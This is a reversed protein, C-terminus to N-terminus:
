EFISGPLGAPDLEFSGKPVGDEEEGSMKDSPVKHAFRYKESGAIVMEAAAAKRRFVSVFGKVKELYAVRGGAEEDFDSLVEVFEYEYKREVDDDEYLSSWNMSWNKFVAWTEGKKPYVTLTKVKQGAESVVLHSFSFIDDAKDNKEHKYKGCSVPLDADVWNKEDETVPEPKFWQIQLKFGPSIKKILAYFRPMADQTDYCAWIQGAKFSEEKRYKDFDSFEPDPVEFTKREEDEDDDNASEGGKNDSDRKDEPSQEDDLKTKKAEKEVPKSPTADNVVNDDDKDIDNGNEKYSVDRKSRSSRRREEGDNNPVSHVDVDEEPESSESGDSSESSEEVRKKRKRNVNGQAKFPDKKEFVPKTTFTRKAAEAPKPSARNLHPRTQNPTKAKTAAATASQANLEYATFPKKCSQCVISKNLVDRYFQYRVTCFPCGTWFTPSHGNVGTFQSNGSHGQNWPHQYQVNSQRNPQQKPNSINGFARRKSDHILRKDRDLLVRQAEGILKFADTSGAFNNKDPHLVLALKRYQKKIAIDDASPEVKLIGYWDKDTGYSRKEASCHVECVLILQSINELEPYLQQAKVAIKLAGSFDKIEMKKEALEKARVAEEKNCEMVRGTIFLIFSPM